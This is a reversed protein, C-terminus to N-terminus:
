GVADWRTSTKPSGLPGVRTVPCGAGAPVPSRRATDHAFLLRQQATPSAPGPVVGGGPPAVTMTAVILPPTEHFAWCTDPPTTGSSLPIEHGMTVAHMATPEFPVDCGPPPTTTVVATTM